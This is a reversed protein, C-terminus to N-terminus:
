HEHGHEAVASGIYMASFLTFVYAQITAVLLEIVNIFVVMFTSAVGVAYSEFIFILGIFSLIVIHGATIAVFLRVTLAIPKTFLGIIEVPVIVLLLPLPVGPTAVVHKWYDKNGNINTIFFTIIALSFTVAINGTLNAAGPVLGLLNGVWIFFFLTLLYPTFKKYKPGINPKAIEDRVFLVIPEIFSAIGRPAKNPHKKYYGSASLTFFLTVALILFLMAVNKTISLDIFFRSEDVAKLKDHDDIYYGNHEVGFHHTEPDVFSSSSYFEIGRDSSYIIVPLSLTVHTHGITAFHWEHSDKVHHMIFSTKDEDGDSAAMAAASFTLLIVSLLISLRTFKRVM